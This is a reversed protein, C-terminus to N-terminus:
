QKRPTNKLAGGAARAEPPFVTVQKGGQWQIVTFIARTNQFKDDFKVGFGSPYSNLPKDLKAAAARVKDVDTSGAAEVTELLIRMGTYATLGQPAVPERNYAKRYSALYASAGPGFKESIDPRPYSVVM